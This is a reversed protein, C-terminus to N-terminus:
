GMEQKFNEIMEVPTPDVGYLIALYFAVFDGFLLTNWMHALPFDGVAEILDTNFGELM